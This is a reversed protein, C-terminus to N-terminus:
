GDSRGKLTLEIHLGFLPTRCTWDPHPHPEVRALDLQTAIMVNPGWQETAGTEHRNPISALRKHRPGRAIEDTCQGRPRTQSRQPGVAELIEGLWGLDILKRM